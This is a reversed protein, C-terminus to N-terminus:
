VLKREAPIDSDAVSRRKNCLLLFMGAFIYLGLGGSFLAAEGMGMIITGAFCVRTMTEKKMNELDRSCLMHYLLYCALILVLVGYSTLIDLHTNHLQSMGTGRSIQSYAGLIPSEGFYMLAARWIMVRADLEKGEKAMFAFVQQVFASEVLLMYLISFILPWLSILLAMGKTFRFGNKTLYLLICIFTVAIITLICNRSETEWVFYLMYAALFIHWLRRFIGRSQFIRILEGTYFCLLFLATLNPNTFGFTLYNSVRNNMMYIAIPNVYFYVILFVALLSNLNLLFKETKEDISLKISAQFFVLTCIFMAYKKMYGLSVRTGEAWANIMVNSLSLGVLFILVADMWTVRRIAGAGWFLVALFFTLTFLFSAAESAGLVTMMVIGAAVLYIVRILFSDMQTLQM